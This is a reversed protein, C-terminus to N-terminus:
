LANIFQHLVIINVGVHKVIEADPECIVRFMGKFFHTGFPAKVQLLHDPFQFVSNKHWVLIYRQNGVRNIQNDFVQLM